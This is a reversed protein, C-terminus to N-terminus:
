SAVTLLLRGYEERLRGAHSLDSVLREREERSRSGYEERLRGAHSSVSLSKERAVRLGACAARSCSYVQVHVTSYYNNYRSPLYIRTLFWKEKLDQVTDIRLLRCLFDGFNGQLDVQTLLRRVWLACRLYVTVILQCQSNYFILVVKLLKNYDFRPKQMAHFTDELIHTRRVDISTRALEFWEEDTRPNPLSARQQLQKICDALNLCGPDTESCFYLKRM